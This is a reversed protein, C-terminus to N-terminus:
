AIFLEIKKDIRRSWYPSLEGKLPEPNGIGQYGSRDIDKILEM